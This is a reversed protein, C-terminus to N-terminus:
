NALTHILKFKQQSLMQAVDAGYGVFLLTGGLGSGAHNLGSFISVAIPGSAEVERFSAPPDSLPQWAGNGNLFIQGNPLVAIVFVKLMQGTEASTPTITASVSLNTADGTVVGAIPAGGVVGGGELAAYAKGIDMIGYGWAPDAGAPSLVSPNYTPLTAPTFSNRQLNGFLVEKAQAPTLQAKKQMLLAVGGTVHPTAMSTGNYAIRRGDVEVDTLSNDSVVHDHGLASLIMAGPALIEPKMVPPCKALNSCNRRPGRSSFGAVDGVPGHNANTTIAGGATSWTQRTVYAGVCITNTATCTDTLIQTTVPVTHSTFVGGNADEGGILSATGGGDVASVKIQWDGAPGETANNPSFMVLIERDDNLPNVANNSIAVAGCATDTSYSPTDAVVTETVCSGNSVQVSWKHTGPYWLQVRYQGSSPIKYGVTVSQGQTLEAEARIPDQGENGAAAVIVVGAGGAESLATEYNSTGDRNGFYSGLSLNIVAPKGAQQAKQKIYNIGDIVANSAEVGGGIANASVIDAMPAMGIFRFAAQGNGTAQGNGAAIGGVHTGHNGTSPQACATSSAGESIAQNLLTPTCEMGYTFGTPPQGQAASRMDWMGLLRTTGDAKLFDPHRFDLGDDVVGVVVGEGTGGTWQMPMGARLATAGTAPVSSSLRSKLPKAAEVFIVGPVQSVQSLKSLPIDATAISQTMSGIKVGLQRLAPFPDGSFRITAAVMAEAQPGSRKVVSRPLTRAAVSASQGAALALSADLRASEVAHAVSQAGGLLVVALGLANLKPFNSHHM